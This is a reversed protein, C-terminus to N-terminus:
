DNFGQSIRGVKTGQTYSCFRGQRGGADTHLLVHTDCHTNHEPLFSISRLSLPQQMFSQEGTSLAWCPICNLGDTSDILSYLFNTIFESLFPTVPYYLVGPFVM